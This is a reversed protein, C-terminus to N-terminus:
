YNGRLAITSHLTASAPFQALPFDVSVTVRVADRGVGQALREVFFQSVRVSPSSLAVIGNGEKRMYMRGNDVWFDVYASTHMAPAGVQTILSLQGTDSNFKSTPAYVVQAAAAEETINELILRSNSLVERESRVRQYLSVTQLLFQAVFLGVLGLLGIYIVMEIMSMGTTSRLKNM